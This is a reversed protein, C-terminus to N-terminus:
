MRLRNFTDKEDNFDIEMLTLWIIIFPLLLNFVSFNAISFGRAFIAITLLIYYPRKIIKHDFKTDMLYFANIEM